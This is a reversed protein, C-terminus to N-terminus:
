PSCARLALIVVDDDLRPSWTEVAQHVAGVLASPAATRGHQALLGPLRDEGFWSGDRRAETLGDTCGFLTDGPGFPTTLTGYGASADVGLPLGTGDLSVGGGAASLVRPPVHGANSWVLEGDGLVAMFATVFATGPLRGRLLANAQALVEGPVSSDMTRAEVFFRVMSSAAAVELGKGSVDGLLVAVRGGAIPWAGFFDGGGAVHGAPAYVLGLEYGELAEPERPVFADTLAGALRREREFDLANAIAAASARALATLLRLERRGFADPEDSGATIVGFLRPGIALPVHVSSRIEAGPVFWSAGPEADGHVQREGIGTQAVRGAVGEGLKIRLALAADDFGESAVPRLEEAAPDFRALLALPAGTLHGVQAVVAGYVEAVRLSRAVQESAHHMLEEDHARAAERDLVESRELVLAGLDAFVEVVHLDEPTLGAASAITLVGFVEGDARVPCSVFASRSYWDWLLEFEAAPLAERLRAELAPAGAWEGIGDLLLPRGREMAEETIGPRERDYARDLVPGFAAAVAETAFWTAAPSIWGREVDVVLFAAGDIPLLGRLRQVLEDLTQTVWATGQRERM